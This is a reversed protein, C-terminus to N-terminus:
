LSIVTNVTTAGLSLLESYSTMLGYKRPPIISSVVIIRLRSISEGLDRIKKEFRVMMPLDDYEFVYHEYNEPVTEQRISDVVRLVFPLDFQVILNRIYYQDAMMHNTLWTAYLSGAVCQQTTARPILFSEEIRAVIYALGFASRVHTAKNPSTPGTRVKM